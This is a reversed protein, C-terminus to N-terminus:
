LLGCLGSILVIKINEVEMATVRMSALLKGSGTILPQEGFSACHSNAAIWPRTYNESASLNLKAESLLRVVM